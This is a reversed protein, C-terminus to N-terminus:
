IEPSKRDAAFAQPQQPPEPTNDEAALGQPQGCIVRFGFDSM